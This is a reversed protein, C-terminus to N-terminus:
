LIRVFVKAQTKCATGKKQARAARSRRVEETKVRRTTGKKCMSGNGWVCEVHFM